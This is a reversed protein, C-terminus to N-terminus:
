AAQLSQKLRRMKGTLSGDLQLSGIKVIVGGLLTPDVRVQLQVKRGYAQSLRSNVAIVQSEKLTAAAVLEGRLEGRARVATEEYLEAVQALLNLRKKHILMGIFQRTVQHVDLKALIQLMAEAKTYASLLPNVLFHRFDQSQEILGGLNRLDGAVAEVSSAESAVAFLAKVYREAVRKEDSKKM